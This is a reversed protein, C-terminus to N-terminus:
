VEFWEELKRKEIATSSIFSGLSIGTMGSSDVV